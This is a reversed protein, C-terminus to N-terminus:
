FSSSPVPKKIIPMLPPVQIWGRRYRVVDFACPPTFVADQGPEDFSLAGCLSPFARSEIQRFLLVFAHDCIFTEEQLMSGVDECRLLPSSTMRIGDKTKL